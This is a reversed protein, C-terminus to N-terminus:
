SVQGLWKRLDKRACWIILLSHKQLKAKKGRHLQPCGKSKAYLCDMVPSFELRLSFCFKWLFTYELISSKVIDSLNHGQGGLPAGADQHCFLYLAISNAKAWRSGSLPWEWITQILSSCYSHKIWYYSFSSSSSSFFSSSFSSSPSFLIM